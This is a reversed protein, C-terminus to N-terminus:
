DSTDEIEELPEVEDLFHAREHCATCLGVLEFLLENFAHAYTKHHAVVAPADGCGECIYGCRKLVKERIAKWADTKRYAEYRVNWDEDLKATRDIHRIAVDDRAKRAADLFRKELSPDAPPYSERDAVKLPNGMRIGCNLCQGQIAIAGGKNTFRRVETREHLCVIRAAEQERGYARFDDIWADEGTRPDTIRV